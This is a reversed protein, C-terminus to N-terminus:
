LDIMLTIVKGKSDLKLLKKIEEMSAEMNKVTRNFTDYSTSLREELRAQLGPDKWADGGPNRLLEAKRKNDVLGELLQNCINRYITEEAGLVQALDELPIQYRLFVRVTSVGKSYAKIGEILLPITALVLGAVEAM